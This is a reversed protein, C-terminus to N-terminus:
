EFLIRRIIGPALASLPNVTVRPDESVGKISYTAAFIGGSGGTLIDGVLPIKGIFKNLGSIPVATGSVDLEGNRMDFAGEFLLGLSNGSTRGKKMELLSGGRRYIWKYDSELKRFFLGDGALADGLGGMSFFAVIKALVPANVVNFNNMVAFGVISRPDEKDKRGSVEITGGRMDNYVDFSNLFAGANDTQFVFVDGQQRNFDFDLRFSGEPMDAHMKFIDYRGSADIDISIDANKVSKNPATLMTGARARILMAPLNYFNDIEPNFAEGSVGDEEDNAMFPQADLTSANLDITVKGADNFVFDLDGMTNDAKFGAFHGFSLETEGQDNQVFGISAGEVAFGEGSLSLGEIKQLLGEKFLAKFDAHANEGPPKEVAFPEVFFRAPTADVKVEAVADRQTRQVYDVDLWASGELFDSLDVGFQKRLNPDAMIKAQIKEIYPKGEFELFTQWTFDMERKELMARGSLSVQGDQVKFALPGGSLDLTDIVDPFYVDSLRGDIEVKFDEVYVDPRTPFNLRVTLDANGKVQGPDMGIKDGLNIPEKAVYRLVDSVHGTLPIKLDAVGQGKKSINKFNFEANKVDTKGIKGSQIFIKLADNNLDYSGHGNANVAKDLPARYDITMGEAKFDATLNQVDVDWQLAPSETDHVSLDSGAERKEIVLDFRSRVDKFNGESLKQVIWIETGDDKLFNPWIPKIEAQKIDGILVNVPGKASVETHSIMADFFFPVDGFRVQTDDIKLTRGAYNYTVNLIMDSYPVPTDSWMEHSLDGKDSVFSFRIDTPLFNEDLITSFSADFVVNQKQLMGLAPSKTALATLDVADLSGDIAVSKEDWIYNMNVALSATELGIEPLNVDLLGEMGIDTSQFKLNFDPLGWTQKAIKDDIVVRADEISFVELRGIISDIHSERGPRAIYGFIRTSLDFQQSRQAETTLGLDFTVGETTRILRVTPNKLIIAKPMLRGLLLGVHSFSIATDGVSVIPVGNPDLIKGGKLELFLSGRLDPWYLVARDMVGRNGTKSDRLAAEIFGKAFTVDWPRDHVRWIFIGSLFFLVLFCLWLGRAVWRGLCWVTKKIKEPMAGIFYLSFAPEFSM